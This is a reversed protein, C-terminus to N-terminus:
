SILKCVQEALNKNANMGPHLLDRAQDNNYVQSRPLIVSHIQLQNCLHEFAMTNKALNIQQNSSSGFWTKVFYDNACPNKTDSSLINLSTQAHDDLLEIRHADTQLWVAHQPKLLKLYHKAFRFATDNSSGAHGLNAVSLGTMSALQSPWTYSMPLGTGMTFSCGFCVVDIKQDFEISRFGHSNFTYDIEVDLLGFEALLQQTYKSKTNKEYLEQSDTTDWYLTQGAYQSYNHVIQNM